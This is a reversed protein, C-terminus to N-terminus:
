AGREQRTVAARFAEAAAQRAMARILRMLAEPAAQPDPSDATSEARSSPPCLDHM